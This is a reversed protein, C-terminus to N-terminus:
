EISRVPITGEDSKIEMVGNIFTPFEIGVKGIMKHSEFSFTVCCHAIELLVAEHGLVAKMLVAMAPAKGPIAPNLVRDIAVPQQIDTCLELVAFRVVAMLMRVVTEFLADSNVICDQFRIVAMLAFIVDLMDIPARKADLHSEGVTKLINM